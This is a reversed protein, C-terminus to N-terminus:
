KNKRGPPSDFRPRLTVPQSLTHTNTHTRIHKKKAQKNTWQKYNQTQMHSLSLSIMHQRTHPTLCNTRVRRTQWLTQGVVAAFEVHRLLVNSTFVNMWWLDFGTKHKTPIEPNVTTRNATTAPLTSGTYYFYFKASHHNGQFPCDVVSGNM